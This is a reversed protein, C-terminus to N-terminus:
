CNEIKTQFIGQCEQIWIPRLSKTTKFFGGDNSNGPLSLYSMKYKQIVSYICHEWSSSRAKSPLHKVNLLVWPSFLTQVM